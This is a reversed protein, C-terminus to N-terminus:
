HKLALVSALTSMYPKGLVSTPCRDICVSGLLQHNFATNASCRPSTCSRLSTHIVSHFLGIATELPRNTSIRTQVVVSDIAMVESWIGARIEDRGAAAAPRRDRATAHLLWHRASLLCTARRGWTAAARGAAKAAKAIAMEGIITAGSGAIALSNCALVARNYNPIGHQGCM